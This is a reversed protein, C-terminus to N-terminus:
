TVTVGHGAVNVGGQPKASSHYADPNTDAITPIGPSSPAGTALTAVTQQQGTRSYTPAWETSNGAAM